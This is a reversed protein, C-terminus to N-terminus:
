QDLKLVSIRDEAMAIRSQASKISLNNYKETRFNENPKEKCSIYKKQSKRNKENTELTNM